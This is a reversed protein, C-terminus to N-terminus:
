RATEAVRDLKRGVDEETVGALAVVKDRGAHGGILKVSERPVSLADALLEILAANAKGREPTAAVRVKWGPGYRGVVGSRGAGPAVRVHLRISPGPV